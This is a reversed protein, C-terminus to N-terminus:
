LSGYSLSISSSSILLCYYPSWFSALLLLLRHLRLAYIVRWGYNNKFCIGTYGANCICDTISDSAAASDMNVPCPHCTSSPLGFFGPSCPHCGGDDSATYGANCECDTIATSAISSTSYDPCQTCVESGLTDKYTGVLCELCTSQGTYGQMCLCDSFVTSSVPSSSKDHCVICSGSGVTDKYTGAQCPERPVSLM